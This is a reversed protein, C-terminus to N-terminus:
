CEESSLMEGNRWEVTGSLRRLKAPRRSSSINTHVLNKTGRGDKTNDDSIADVFLKHLGPSPPFKHWFILPATTPKVRLFYNNDQDTPLWASKWQCEGCTMRVMNEARSVRITDTTSTNCDQNGCASFKYGFARYASQKAVERSEVIRKGDVYCAYVVIVTAHELVDPNTVLLNCISEWVDTCGFVAAARIFAQVTPGVFGPLTSSGGFGIVFDFLDSEVMALVKEFETKVQMVPGRTILFLGRRGGRAKPTTNYWPTGGNITTELTEDERAALSAAKMATLLPKGLHTQVIESTTHKNSSTTGSTHQLISSYANSHTDVIVFINSPTDNLVSRMVWQGVAGMKQDDSSHDGAKMPLSTTHLNGTYGKYQNMLDITILDKLYDNSGSTIHVICAPWAKKAM